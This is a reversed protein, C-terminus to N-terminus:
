GGPNEGNRRRTQGITLDKKVLALHVGAEPVAAEEINGGDGTRLEAPVDCHLGPNKDLTIGVVGADQVNTVAVPDVVNKESLFRGVSFDVKLNETPGTAVGRGKYLRGVGDRQLCPGVHSPYHLRIPVHLQVDIPGQHSGVVLRRYQGTILGPETVENPLTVPGAVREPVTSDGVHSEPVDRPGM